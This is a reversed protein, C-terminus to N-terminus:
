ATAARGAAPWPKPEPRAMASWPGPVPDSTPIWYLTARDLGTLRALREFAPGSLRRRERVVGPVSCMLRRARDRPPPCLGRAQCFAELLEDIEIAAWWGHAEQTRMWIVFDTCVELELNTRYERHPDVVRHERPYFARNTMSM